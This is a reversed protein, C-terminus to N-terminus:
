RGHRFDPQFDASATESDWAELMELFKNYSFSIEPTVTKGYDPAITVALSYMVGLWWEQPLDLQNTQADVDMLPRVYTFMFLTDVTSETPWAYFTGSDRGPDYYWQTIISQTLKNPLVFYDDRSLEYVETDQQQIRRRVQEIRLPRVIINSPSYAYVVAGDPADGPLADTLTIDGGTPAGSVTTWHILSADIRIGIVDTDSIGSISDVSITTAGSSADASLATQVFESVAREGTSDGTLRYIDRGVETFMTAEELRWLNYQASMNKLLLELTRIGDAMAQATPREEARLIAIKRLADTVLDEATYAFDFSNSVPM